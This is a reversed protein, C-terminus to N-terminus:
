LHTGGHKTRSSRWVARPCSQSEGMGCPCPPLFCLARAVAEWTASSWTGPSKVLSHSPGTRMHSVNLGEQWPCLLGLLSLVSFVVCFYFCWHYRTQLLMLSCRSVYATYMQVYTFMHSAYTFMHVCLVYTFCIHVDPCMPQLWSLGEWDPGCHLM